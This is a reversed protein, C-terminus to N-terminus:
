EKPFVSIKIGLQLLEQILLKSAYPITCAQVKDGHCSQCENRNSTFIGCKRCVPVQFPDSVDFLREKLFRSAGHSIIADREMELQVLNFDSDIEIKRM